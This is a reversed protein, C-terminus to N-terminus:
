ETVIVYNGAQDYVYATQGVMTFRVSQNEGTLQANAQADVDTSETIRYLGSDTDTAEILANSGKKYARRITPGLNDLDLQTINSVADYVYVTGTPVPGRARYTQSSTPYDSYSAEGNYSTSPLVAGGADTIKWLGTNAATATITYEGNGYVVSVQPLNLRDQTFNDLPFFYKSFLTGNSPSLM